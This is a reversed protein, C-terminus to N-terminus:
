SRSSCPIFFDFNLSDIQIGECIVKEGRRAVIGLPHTRAIFFGETTACAFMSTSDRRTHDSEVIRSKGQDQVSSGAQTSAKASSSNNVGGGATAAARKGGFRLNAVDLGHQGEEQESYRETVNYFQANVFTPTPAHSTLTHRPLNM